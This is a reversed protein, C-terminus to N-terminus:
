GAEPVWRLLIGHRNIEITVLDVRYVPPSLGRAARRVLSAKEPTFAELPDGVRRTKVEVAVRRRNLEILLDIESRGVRLNRGLVVGGQQELFRAAAREGFRALAAAGVAPPYRAPRSSAKAESTLILLSCAAPGQTSSCSGLLVGPAFGRSM